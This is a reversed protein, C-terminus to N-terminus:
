VHLEVSLMLLAFLLPLYLVSARLVHRAFPKSAPALPPLGTSRLRLGFWLYGVSLILAGIGYVPGSVGIFFPLMSVPILVLSYLVIKRATSHGQKEVVPLMRISAREYDEAYLWAISFFHPFQWVFLIAFLALAEWEVRGRLATFGLLPPM